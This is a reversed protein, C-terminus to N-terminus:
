TKFGKLTHKTRHRCKQVLESRKNLTTKPDARAIMMKESLCLDCRRTGCKYPFALSKISWSISYDIKEDKLTWIYNSLVTSAPYDRHRFSTNHVNLRAKFDGACIGIYNFDGKVSKVLANYVLCSQLCQNELPCDANPPCNCKIEPVPPPPHLVKSNHKSIINAMNPM